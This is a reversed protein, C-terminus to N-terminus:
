QTLREQYERAFSLSSQAPEVSPIVHGYRHLGGAQRVIIGEGRLTGQRDFRTFMM